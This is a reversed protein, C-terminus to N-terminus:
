TFQRIIGQKKLEHQIEDYEELFDKKRHCFFDSTGLNRDRRMKMRKKIKDVLYACDRCYKQRNSKREIEKGCYLCIM